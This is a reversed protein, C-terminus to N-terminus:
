SEKTQRHTLDKQLLGNLILQLGSFLGFKKLILSISLVQNFDYEYKIEVSSSRRSFIFFLDRPNVCRLLELIITKEVTSFRLSCALVTELEEEAFAFIRMMEPALTGGMATDPKALSIERYNHKLLYEVSKNIIANREEISLSDVSPYVSPKRLVELPLKPWEEKPNIKKGVKQKLAENAQIGFTKFLDVVFDYDNLSELQCEVYKIKPFKKKYAEARAYIERAYWLCTEYCDLNQSPTLLNKAQYPSLLWTSRGPIDHIRLLSYAIKQVDRKLIIVGIEEQPIFTDPLLYGWGKIFSHNTECYIKESRGQAKKIERVKLPMLARLPEGNGDNFDSMPEGNMIPFAEHISITNHACTLLETLYDSGSRGPNICFLYKIAM